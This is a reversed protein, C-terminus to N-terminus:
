QERGQLKKIEKLLEKETNFYIHKGCSDCFAIGNYSGTGMTWRDHKCKTM